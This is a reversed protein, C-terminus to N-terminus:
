PTPLGPPLKGGADNIIQRAEEVSIVVDVALYLKQLIEALERATARESGDAEDETEARVDLDEFDRMEDISLLPEGMKDGIEAAIKYSEYRAKLDSRLLGATNFKVVQGAPLLESLAEELPMVVPMVADQLLDQQRNERNSYQIGSGEVPLGVHEPMLGFFGALEIASFKMSEIFQSDEPNVQLQTWTVSQPLVIPERNTGNVSELVRAKLAAAGAPGPDTEPAIIATPHGGDRFFNSGFEAAALGAFTTKRAYELPNVGKPSGPITLYPVQWFRGAPWEEVQRADVTWGNQATWDVRDPHILDLREVTIRNGVRRETVYAYAGGGLLMSTSAARKWSSCRLVQPSPSALLDPQPDVETRGDYADWPFQAVIGSIKSVSRYVIPHSMAVEASASGELSASSGTGLMSQRLIQLIDSTTSSRVESEPLPTVASHDRSRTFLSM